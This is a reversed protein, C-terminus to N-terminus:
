GSGAGATCAFCHQGFAIRRTALTALAERDALLAGIHRPPDALRTRAALNFDCDWLTGDWALEITRRCDLLPLVAPNFRDSLESLYGDATGQERLSAGLGGLPVGTIELLSRFAIGQGAFATRYEREVTPQSRPTRGGHPVHALDLAITGASGDGYGLERARALARLRADGADITPSPLSALLEVRHEALHELVGGAAPALLGTLNTRVRVHPTGAERAASVLDRLLPWLAPEGGTVDLLRPELAGLLELAQGMTEASMTETRTPSCAHHCPACATDCRLGVNLMLTDIREAHFTAPAELRIRRSFEVASPADHPHVPIM